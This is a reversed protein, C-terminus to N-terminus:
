AMVQFQGLFSSHFRRCIHVPYSEQLHEPFIGSIHDFCITYFVATVTLNNYFIFLRKINKLFALIDTTLSYCLIINKFEIEVMVATKFGTALGRCEMRCLFIKKKYM